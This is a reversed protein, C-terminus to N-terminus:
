WYRRQSVPASDSTSRHIAQKAVTNNNAPHDAISLITPITDVDDWVRACFSSSKASRSLERYLTTMSATKAMSTLKVCTAICLQEGTWGRAVGGAEAAMQQM